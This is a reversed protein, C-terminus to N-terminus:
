RSDAGRVTSFCSLFALVALSALRDDRYDQTYTGLYDEVGDHDTDNKNYLAGPIFFEWDEVGGAGVATTEAGFEARLGKSTGAKTIRVERDVQITGKDLPRWTDSIELWTGEPGSVDATAIWTGAQERVSSYGGEVAGLGLFCVRFPVPVRMWEQGGEGLSIAAGEETQRLDINM